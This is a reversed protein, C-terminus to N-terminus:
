PLWIHDEDDPFLKMLLLSLSFTLYSRLFHAQYTSPPAFSLLSAPCTSDKDPDKEPDVPVANGPHSLSPVWPARLGSLPALLAWSSGHVCSGGPPSTQLVSCPARSGPLTRPVPCAMCLALTEELHGAFGASLEGWPLPCGWSGQPVALHSRAPCLPRAPLASARLPCPRAGPCCPHSPLPPLSLLPQLPSM